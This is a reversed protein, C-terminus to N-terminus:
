RRASSSSSRATWSRIAATPSSSSRNTSSSRYIACSARCHPSSATVPQLRVRMVADQLDSTVSSLNQVTAKVAENGALGAVEILQNRTLVLESVVGMLRDLVGVSVRVTEGGRPGPAHLPEPLPPPPASVPGPQAVSQGRASRFSAAGGEIQRLLDSDDGDPEAETRAIEGLILALRDIAAFILSVHAPTAAVGERLPGILTETAHALRAIRPLSLFGSSGKITHIHRFLSAVLTPDGQDKEFRLLETSTAEIHEAAEQLFDKLLDDM